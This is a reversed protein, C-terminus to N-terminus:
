GTKNDCDGCGNSLICQGTSNDRGDFDSDGNCRGGAGVSCTGMQTDTNDKQKQDKGDNGDRNSIGSGRSGNSSIGGSASGSSAQVNIM